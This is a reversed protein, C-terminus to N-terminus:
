RWTPTPPGARRGPPAEARDGRPLPPLAGAVPVPHGRPGAGDPESLGDARDRFPYHGLVSAILEPGPDPDLVLDVVPDATAGADDRFADHLLHNLIRRNLDTKARYDALFRQAPGTRDEWASAPPYGM